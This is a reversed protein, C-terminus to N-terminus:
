HFNREKRRSSLANRLVEWSKFGLQNAVLVHALESPGYDSRLRSIGKAKRRRSRAALRRTLNEVMAAAYLMKLERVASSQPGRKKQLQQRLGRVVHDRLVPDPISEPNAEVIRAVDEASVHAGQESRRHIFSLSDPGFQDWPTKSDM